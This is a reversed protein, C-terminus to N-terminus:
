AALNVGYVDATATAAGGQPTTLSFYISTTGGATPIRLCTGGGFSHAGGVKTVDAYPTTTPRGSCHAPRALRGASPKRPRRKPSGISPDRLIIVRTMCSFRLANATLRSLRIWPPSTSTSSPLQRSPGRQRPEGPHMEPHRAGGPREQRRSQIRTPINGLQTAPLLPPTNAVDVFGCSIWAPSRATATTPSRRGADVAASGGAGVEGVASVRRARGGDAAGADIVFSVGSPMYPASTPISSTPIQTDDNPSLSQNATTDWGDSSTTSPMANTSARSACEPKCRARSIIPLSWYGEVTAATANGSISGVDDMDNAALDLVFDTAGILQAFQMRLTTSPQGSIPCPTIISGADIAAQKGPVSFGM